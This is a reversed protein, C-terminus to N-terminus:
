GGLQIRTEYLGTISQYIITSEWIQSISNYRKRDIKVGFFNFASPAGRFTLTLLEVMSKALEEVSGEKEKEYLQYVEKIKAENDLYQLSFNRIHLLLEDFDSIHKNVYDYSEPFKVVNYKKSHYVLAVLHDPLVLQNAKQAENGGSLYRREGNKLEYLTNMPLVAYIIPNVYNKDELYKIQNKEFENFFIIPIAEIMKREKKNKIAKFVVCCAITLSGKGGYKKPDLHNKRPILHNASKPRNEEKGYSGKLIEVKRSINIQKSSLVKKIQPLDREKNWFAEVLKSDIKPEDEKFFNLINSYMMKKATAKNDKHRNVTLYEGYVFEPRLKPYVNILTKGIVANLYADHAHHYDNIERVKYIDFMKRFESTVSSKLTIIKIKEESNEDNFRQDLIQAVYKTIQRTEVLQRTIFGAKDADSLGGRKIKTLNDFKRKSILNANKLQLWYAEMRKVIDKSPVGNSKQRNDTSSVLVLNDISNDVTFSKPIIHDIDYNSLSHIDLPEGTYMDKGNQLYYLYFRDMSLKKSEDENKLEKFLESGLKKLSDELHTFRMKSKSKGYQTTQNERSMEVVINEPKKGMINILEDVIKLSQFIGRKIAPSGPLESVLEELEIQNDIKQNERITEKFSLREDNILQMFNRNHYGKADDDILYDLISKQSQQDRIGDILTKSLRGWGVYKKRSLEKKLNPTLRGDFKSLQRTIMQRDEFITLIWIIEELMDKNAEDELLESMGKIKKLDHYTSYSANFKDEVGLVSVTEILYENGLFIELDRKSVKRNKKFCENFIHLKMEKNLFNKNGQDDIYVTKTLENFITFKQYLLSNKPLVKEKPLYTDRNTMREIFETASAEYDVITEINWPTIKEESNRVIWSYKSQKNKDLPGIYYPIRFEFLSLIKEKNELLKPYYKGQNELIRKLEDGHIQHPIVGNDFTRQKRLFTEQNIKEIFGETATENSFIKKCYKYFEEQTTKETNEIYGAYGHKTSDSFFTHYEEPRNKKMWKKLAKLDKKHEEYREVMSNSLPANTLMSGEGIINSLLIGDYLSKVSEFLEFYEESIKEFILTLDEEYSKGSIQLNANEDLGFVNKFNVKLGLSLRLFAGLAGNKKENEFFNLIKEFKATRSLKLQIIKNFEIEQSKSLVFSENFLYNYQHLFNQFLQEVNQASASLSGEILFHGRFKMVHACALYVLRIDAQRPNDVLEKRLHYITPYADHYAVEEEITGFIPYKEFQKDEEVLFSEDLRAWFNQDVVNIEESFLQQLQLIRYRRREYRRRTTRQLRRKEATQGENFLRAGWFNKKTSKVETNGYIPMKKRVLSFDDKVVAYGVSNTGIDIGITYNQNM